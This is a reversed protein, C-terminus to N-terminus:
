FSSVDKRGTLSSHTSPFDMVFLTRVYQVYKRYSYDPEAHYETYCSTSIAIKFKEFNTTGTVGDLDSAWAFNVYEVLRLDNCFIM